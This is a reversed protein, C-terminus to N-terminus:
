AEQFRSTTGIDSVEHTSEMFPTWGIIKGNGTKTEFTELGNSRM